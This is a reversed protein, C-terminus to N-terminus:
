GLGIDRRLRASLEDLDYRIRHAFLTRDTARALRAVLRWFHTAIRPGGAARHFAIDTM